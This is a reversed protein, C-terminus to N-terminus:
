YLEHFRELWKRRATLPCWYEDVLRQHFVPGKWKTPDGLHTAPIDNGPLVLTEYELRRIAEDAAKVDPPWPYQLKFVAAVARDIREELERYIPGLTPNEKLPTTWDGLYAEAADHFLMEAPHVNAWSMLVSHQAVSYYRVMGRWRCTNALGLSIDRPDVDDVSFTFLDIFKRSPTLVHSM